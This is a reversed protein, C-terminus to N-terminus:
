WSPPAVCTVALGSQCNTYCITCSSQCRTLALAGQFMPCTALCGSFIRSCLAAQADAAPDQAPGTTPGSTTPTRGCDTADTGKECAGTGIGIEDCEGDNAYLCSDTSATKPALSGRCDASDTGAKCNGTGIAPEDCEGDHAWTCTNNGIGLCDLSDTSAPCTGTGIDPEDCTGDRATTCSNDAWAPGPNGSVAALVAVALLIGSATRAAREMIRRM